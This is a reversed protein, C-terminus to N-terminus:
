RPTEPIRTASVPAVWRHRYDTPTVGFVKTFDRTFHSSDNVGIEAIIEKVSMASSKLLEAARFLRQMKAFKGPSMGTEAKFIHRLRSSSMNVSKAAVGLSIPRGQASCASTIIHCVKEVRWDAKTITRGTKVRRRESTSMAGDESCHSLVHGDSSFRPFRSQQCSPRM